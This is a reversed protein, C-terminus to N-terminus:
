LARRVSPMLSSALGSEYPRRHFHCEPPQDPLTCSATAFVAPHWLREIVGGEFDVMDDALLMASRGGGAVNTQATVIAVREFSRIQRAQVPLCTFDRRQEVRPAVFPCRM